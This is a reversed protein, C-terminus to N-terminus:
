SAVESTAAAFARATVLAREVLQALTENPVAFATASASSADGYLSLGCSWSVASCSGCSRKGIICADLRGIRCRIFACTAGDEM